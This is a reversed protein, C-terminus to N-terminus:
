EKKPHLQQKRGTNDISKVLNGTIRMLEIEDLKANYRATSLNTEAQILNLQAERFRISTVQGLSFLEKTRQFNVRASSLNRRELDLVIRSNRYSEFANSLKRELERRAQQQLLEQNRVRISANKNDTLRQFGDFINFSLTARAGWSRTPDNLSLKFEDATQSYGYSTSLDLRPLYASTAINKSLRAQELAEVTFRYSANSQYAKQLMANMSELEAFTVGEEVTFPTSIDRDLLLNLNRKAEEWNFKANVVTVTDSNFDVQAALVDITGGQGFLAKQKARELRERSISLLHQAIRLNELASAAGYYANSVNILINEIQDRAELESQRSESTLLQYRSINALGDFLTYSASIQASTSSVVDSSSLTTNNGQSGPHDTNTYDSSGTLNVSPLLGANGIHAKNEAMQTNNRAVIVQPNSRLATTIANRFSLVPAKTSLSEPTVPHFGTAHDSAISGKSDELQHSGSPSNCVVSPANGWGAFSIFIIVSTTIINKKM